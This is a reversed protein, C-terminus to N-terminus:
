VLDISMNPRSLSLIVYIGANEYARMCGTHDATNDVMYVRITNVLLTKMLSADLACQDPNTLVDVASSGMDYAMGEVHDTM